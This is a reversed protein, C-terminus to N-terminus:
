HKTAAIRAHIFHFLAIVFFPPFLYYLLPEEIPIGFVKPGWIRSENYVWHGRQLSYYEAALLAAEFVGVTAWAAAWNVRGRVSRVLPLSVALFPVLLLAWLPRKEGRRYVFRGGADRRPAPQTM